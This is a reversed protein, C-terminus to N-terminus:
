RCVMHRLLKVYGGEVMWMRRAKGHQMLAPLTPLIAGNSDDLQTYLQQEAATMKVVMMGPRMKNRSDEEERQSIGREVTPDLGRNNLYRDPLVFTLVRKSHM